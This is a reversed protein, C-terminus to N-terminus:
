YQAPSPQAPSPQAPSPQAPSPQAPSPQAPSPQAPSPQAPSPVLKKILSVRIIYNARTTFGKVQSYVQAVTIEKGGFTQTTTRAFKPLGDSGRANPDDPSPAAMASTPPPLPHLIRP